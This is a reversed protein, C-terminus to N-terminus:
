LLLTSQDIQIILFIMLFAFRMIYMDVKLRNTNDFTKFQLRNQASHYSTQRTTQIQKFLM